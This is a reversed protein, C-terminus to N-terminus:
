LLLHCWASIRNRFNMMKSNSKPISVYLSKIRDRWSWNTGLTVDLLSMTVFYFFVSFLVLCWIAFERFDMICFATQSQQRQAAQFIVDFIYENIERKRRTKSDTFDLWNNTFNPADRWTSQACDGTKFSGCPNYM